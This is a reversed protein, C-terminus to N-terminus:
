ECISEEQATRRIAGAVARALLPPVANGVQMYGRWKTRDVQFWDPMSQLRAAERVTICRPFTYHIPRPATHSGRDPLTGARITPAPSDPHLRLFRSIPDSTGPSVDRFRQQIATAHRVRGCGMLSTPRPRPRARNDDDAIEGRLRLAYPSAPGLEGDHEGSPGPLRDELAELDGIAERTTPAKDGLPTPPAPLTLGCRAGVIFVRRRRQPVGYDAADLLWPEDVDYGARLMDRRFGEAIERAGSMLIGPVNEMVFYPPSVERILRAFEAVLGRREDDRRGIGGVSFAACPPGGILATCSNLGVVDLLNSGSLSEVDAVLAADPFNTAYAMMARADSDVGLVPVFGAQEFGLSLGGAGAFVDIATLPPRTSAPYEASGLGDSRPGSATHPRRTPNARENGTQSPM